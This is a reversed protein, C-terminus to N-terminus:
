LATTRNVMNILKSISAMMEYKVKKKKLQQCKQM